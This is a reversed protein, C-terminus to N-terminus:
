KTEHGSNAPLIVKQYRAVPTLSGPAYLWHISEDYAATGDAYVPTEAIMQYGSWRYETGAPRTGAANEAVVKQKGIRRGFPDYTYRWRVGSPTM